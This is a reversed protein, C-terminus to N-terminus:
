WVLQTYIVHVLLCPCRAFLHMTKIVTSNSNCLNHTNCGLQQHFGLDMVARLDYSVIIVVLQTYRYLSKHEIFKTM